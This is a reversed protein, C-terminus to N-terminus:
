MGNASRLLVMRGLCFLGHSNADVIRSSGGCADFNKRADSLDWFVSGKEM